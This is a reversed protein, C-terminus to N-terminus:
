VIHGVVPYPEIPYRNDDEVEVNEEEAYKEDNGNEMVGYYGSIHHVIIFCGACDSNM